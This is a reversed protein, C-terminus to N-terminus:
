KNHVEELKPRSSWDSYIKRIAEPCYDMGAFKLATKLSDDGGLSAVDRFVEQRTLMDEVKTILGLAAADELAHCMYTNASTIPDPDYLTPDGLLLDFIEQLPRALRPRNEWDKFIALRAEWNHPLENYALAHELSFFPPPFDEYPKRLYTEIEDMAALLEQKTILPEDLGGHAEALADCMYEQCFSLAYLGEDIVLNFIEQIPRM